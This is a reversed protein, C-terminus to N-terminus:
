EPREVGLGTHGLHHRVAEHDHGHDHEALVLAIEGLIEDTDKGPDGNAREYNEPFTSPVSNDRRHRQPSKQLLEFRPM